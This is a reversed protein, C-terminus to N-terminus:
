MLADKLDDLDRQITAELQHKVAKLEQIVSLLGGAMAEITTANDGRCMIMLELVSKISVQSEVTPFMMKQLELLFPRNINLRKLLARSNANNMVQWLEQQSIKGDGGDFQKLDGLLEQKVLGIATSDRQEAGVRSVVDCLVGILMQLILLASLLAYSMFICGALVFNFKDSFLLETMLPAANDLMLTGAM